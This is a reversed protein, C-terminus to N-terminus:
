EKKEIAYAGGQENWTSSCLINCCTRTEVQVIVSNKRNYSGQSFMYAYIKYFALIGNLAQRYKYSYM